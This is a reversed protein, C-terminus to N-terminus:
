HNASKTYGSSRRSCKVDTSWCDSITSGIWNIREIDLSDILHRNPIRHMSGISRTYWTIDVPIIHKLYQWHIDVPDVPDMSSISVWHIWYICHIFNVVRIVREGFLCSQLVFKALFAITIERTYFANLLRPTIQILILTNFIM